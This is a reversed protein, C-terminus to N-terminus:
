MTVGGDIGVSPQWVGTPSKNFVQPPSFTQLKTPLPPSIFHISLQPDTVIISQAM